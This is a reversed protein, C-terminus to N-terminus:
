VFVVVFRCVINGVVFNVVIFFGGVIGVGFCEGNGGVGFDVEFDVVDDVVGVWSCEVYGFNGIVLWGVCLVVFFGNLEFDLFFLCLESVGIGFLGYWLIYECNLFKM